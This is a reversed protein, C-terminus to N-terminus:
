EKLRLGLEILEESSLETHVVHHCHRCIAIYTSDDLFYKYRDSGMFLHHVESSIGTCGPLKVECTIRSKMFEKRLVSYAAQRKKEKSSQKPIPKITTTSQLPKNSTTSQKIPKRKTACQFSFHSDIAGCHKCVNPKM